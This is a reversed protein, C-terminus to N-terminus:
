RSPCEEPLICDGDTNLVFGTQCFCGEVCQETCVLFDAEAFNECTLPCATGCHQYEMFENECVVDKNPCVDVPVCIGNEENRVFGERCFCGSNCQEKCIIEQGYNDCTVQWSTGGDIWEEEIPCNNIPSIFTHFIIPFTICFICFAAFCIAGKDVM